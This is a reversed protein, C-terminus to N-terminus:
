PAHSSMFHTYALAGFPNKSNQPGKKSQGYNPNPTISKLVLFHTWYSKTHRKELSTSLDQNQSPDIKIYWLSYGMSCLSKKDNQPEKKSQGYNLYPTVSKLSILANLLEEYPREFHAKIRLRLYTSKPSFFNRQKM